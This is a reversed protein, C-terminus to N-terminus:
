RINSCIIKNWQRVSRFGAAVAKSRWLESIKDQDRGVFWDSAKHKNKHTSFTGYFHLFHIWLLPFKVSSLPSIIKYGWWLLLTHSIHERPGVISPINFIVQIQLLCFFWAVPCFIVIATAKNHFDFLVSEKLFSLTGDWQYPLSTHWPDPLFLCYHDSDNLMNVPMCQIVM